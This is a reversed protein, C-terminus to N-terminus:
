PQATFGAAAPCVVCSFVCVADLYSLMGQFLIGVTQLQRQLATRRPFPESDDSVEGRMMDDM